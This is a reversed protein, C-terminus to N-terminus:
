RLEGLLLDVVEERNNVAAIMLLTFFGGSNPDVGSDLAEKVQQVEGDRCKVYLDRNDVM